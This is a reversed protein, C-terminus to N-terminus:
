KSTDSEPKPAAYHQARAWVDSSYDGGTTRKDPTTASRVNGPGCNYASVALRLVEAKSADPFKKAMQTRYGALIGAAQRIHEISKPKGKVTHSNKDVQMIGYGQGDWRSYGDKNIQTGGRTERSAIAMLLAPPLDFEAAVKEFLPILPELRARDAEAMADSTAVGGKKYGQGKATKTSAGTTTIEGLIANLDPEAEPAPTAKPRLAAQGEAYSATRLASSTTSRPASASELAQAGSTKAVTQAPVPM